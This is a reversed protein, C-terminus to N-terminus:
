TFMVLRSSLTQEAQQPPPKKDLRLILQKWRIQLALM